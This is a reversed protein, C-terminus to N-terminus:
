WLNISTKGGPPAMVKTSARGGGPAKANEVAPPGNIREGTGDTPHTSGKLINACNDDEHSIINYSAANRRSKTASTPSPTAMDEFITSSNRRKQCENVVMPQSNIADIDNTGFINSSRGGPPMHVRTSSKNSTTRVGAAAITSIREAMHVSIENSQNHTSIRFDRLFYVFRTIDTLQVM